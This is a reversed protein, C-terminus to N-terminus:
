PSVAPSIASSSRSVTQEDAFHGLRSSHQDAPVAPDGPRIRLQGLQDSRAAADSTSGGANLHTTVVHLRANEAIRVVAYLDGPAQGGRRPIGKGRLRLRQLTELTPHILM